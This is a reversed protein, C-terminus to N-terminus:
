CHMNIQPLLSIMIKECLPFTGTAKLYLFLLFSGTRLFRMEVRRQNYKGRKVIPHRRDEGNLAL